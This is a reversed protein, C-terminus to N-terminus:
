DLLYWKQLNSTKELHSSRAFAFSCSYARSQPLLNPAELELSDLFPFHWLYNAQKLCISINAQLSLASHFDKRQQWGFVPKWCQRHPKQDQWGFWACGEKVSIPWGGGGGGCVCRPSTVCLHFFLIDYNVKERWTQGGLLYFALCTTFSRFPTLAEAKSFNKKAFGQYYPCGRPSEYCVLSKRQIPEALTLM